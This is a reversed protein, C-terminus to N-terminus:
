QFYAAHISGTMSGAFFLAVISLAFCVMLLCAARVGYWGFFRRLHLYVGFFLWTILSWTEIPDWGWFRGWSQYAWISGSLMAIAWFIFGFGAFRYAISDTEAPTPLKKLWHYATRQQLIYFISFALAILLTALAIKYFSIHFVLWISTFTPPLKKLAPNTFLGIVVMLFSAPFVLISGQRLWPYLRRYVLFLTLSVWACSSLVEYKALYPGHGSLVWRYVLAAGHIALGAMILRYSTKEYSQRLFILGSVNAITAMVYFAVTLWHLGTDMALPTITLLSEM